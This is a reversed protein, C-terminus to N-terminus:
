GHAQYLSEIHKIIIIIDGQMGGPVQNGENLFTIEEGDKMGKEIEVNIIKKETIMDINYGQGNCNNCKGAQKPPAYILNFVQNM